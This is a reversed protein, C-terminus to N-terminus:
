LDLVTLFSANSTLYLSIEGALNWVLQSLRLLFLCFHVAVIIYLLSVWSVHIHSFLDQLSMNYFVRRLFYWWRFLGFLGKFTQSVKAIGEDHLSQM